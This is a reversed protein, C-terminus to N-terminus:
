RLVVTFYETICAKGSDYIASELCLSCRIKPLSRLSSYARNIAIKWSFCLKDDSEQIKYLKEIKLLGQQNFM